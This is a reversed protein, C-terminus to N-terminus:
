CTQNVLSEAGELTIYMESRSELSEYFKIHGATILDMLETIQCGMMREVDRFELLVPDLDTKYVQINCLTTWWLSPPLNEVEIKKIEM